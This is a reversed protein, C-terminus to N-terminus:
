CDPYQKHWSANLLLLIKLIYIQIYILASIFNKFFIKPAANGDEAFQTQTM